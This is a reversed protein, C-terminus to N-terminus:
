EKPPEQEFYDAYRGEVFRRRDDHDERTRQRGEAEWRELIRQIYRWNRANHTLAIRFAEEIWDAPYREEAEKLEEVILPKLLGINQEYLTFINAREPPAGLMTEAEAEFLNLDGERAQALAQRGKDSNLFYFTDERSGRREALALLSGRAVALELGEELKAQVETADDDLSARLVDDRLLERRTVFCPFGRRQDLRWIVHLTVKLEALDDIYPLLDSFFLSPMPTLRMKGEPFGSFVRM